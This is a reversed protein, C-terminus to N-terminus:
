SHRLETGMSVFARRDHYPLELGKVHLAMDAAAPGFHAVMRMVGQAM